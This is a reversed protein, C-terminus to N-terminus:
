AHTSRVEEGSSIGPDSDPTLETVNAYPFFISSINQISQFYNNPTLNDERGDAEILDAHQYDPNVNVKNQKWAGPKNKEVHYVLMGSGGIHADWGDNSRCEILYYETPIEPAIKYYQGNENIPRLTHSGNREIMIPESLGLLEREIANFYPPTNYWNNQNGGDMLSTSNWM